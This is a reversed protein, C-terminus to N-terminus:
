RQVEQKGEPLIRCGFSLLIQLIQACPGYDVPRCQPRETLLCNSYNRNLIPQIRVSLNEFHGFLWKFHTM